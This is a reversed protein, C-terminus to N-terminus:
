NPYPNTIDNERTYINQNHKKVHYQPFGKCNKKMEQTKTTPIEELKTKM